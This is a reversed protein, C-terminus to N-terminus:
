SEAGALQLAELYEAESPLMRGRARLLTMARAHLDDGIRDPTPEVARAYRSVAAEYLEASPEEVGLVSLDATAQLHVSLGRSDLGDAYASGFEVEAAVIEGDLEAADSAAVSAQRKWGRIISMTVLERDAGTGVLWAAEGNVDKVREISKV